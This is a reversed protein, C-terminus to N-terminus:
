KKSARLASKRWPPRAARKVAPGPMRPVNEFMLAIPVGLIQCVEHLRAASVRDKGAEYKQVQQFSIGLEQGLRDQSMGRALHAARIKEGFHQDVASVAQPNPPRPKKM